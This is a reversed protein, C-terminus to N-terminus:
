RTAPAFWFARRSGRLGIRRLTIHRHGFSPLSCAFNHTVADVDLEVVYSARLAVLKRGAADTSHARFAAGSTVLLLRQQLVTAGLGSGHEPRFCMAVAADTVSERLPRSGRGRSVHRAVNRPRPIANSAVGLRESVRWRNVSVLAGLAGLAMAHVFRGLRGREGTRPTVAINARRMLRFAEIGNVHARGAVRVRVRLSRDGFRATHPAVESAFGRTHRRRRQQRTSVGFARGAVLRVIESRSLHLRAAGTVAGQLHEPRVVNARMLHARAAVRRVIDAARCSSGAGITMSRHVGIMGRALSCGARTTVIRVRVGRMGAVDCSRTAVAMMRGSRIARKVLASRALPAVRWVIEHEGRKLIGRAATTVARLHIARGLAATVMVALAAM